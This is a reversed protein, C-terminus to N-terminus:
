SNRTHSQLLQAWDYVDIQKRWVTAHASPPNHGHLDSSSSSPCTLCPRYRSVAPAMSGLYQLRSSDGWNQPPSTSIRMRLLISCTGMWTMCLALSAPLYAAMRGKARGRCRIRSHSHKGQGAQLLRLQMSQGQGACRGRIRGM